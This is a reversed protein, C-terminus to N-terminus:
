LHDVHDWLISCTMVIVGLGNIHLAETEFPPVDPMGGLDAIGGRDECEQCCSPSPTAESPTPPFIPRRTPTLPGGREWIEM